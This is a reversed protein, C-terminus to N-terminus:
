NGFMGTAFQRNVPGFLQNLLLRFEGQFQRDAQGTVPFAYAASVFRNSRLRTQLGLVVNIVETHTDHSGVDLTGKQISDGDRWATNSHAEFTPAIGQILNDPSDALYTWYGVSLSTYLTPTEQLKGARTLGDKDMPGGPPIGFFASNAYVPSGNADIDFQILSQSFFRDNPTFLMAAYPMIHTSRNYIRLLDEGGAGRVKTDRATPAGVML